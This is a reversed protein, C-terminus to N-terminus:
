DARGLREVVPKGMLYRQSVLVGRYRMKGEEMVKFGAEIGDKTMPWSIIIPRIGHLSVFRLMQRIEQRSAAASGQIKIGRQVLADVPLPLPDYSALLHLTGDCAVLSLARTLDPAETGFWLLHKVQACRDVPAGDKLLHFEKAGLSIAEDRKDANTSLAVVEYGLASAFQIAMHGTGGIGQVGVRDGPRMDSATLATWATAGGGMLPAAHEPELSAPLHFLMREDWVAHTAFAGGNDQDSGYEQRCECYQDKGGVCYDCHGCIKQVWGFGVKDGSKFRHVAAGVDRVFGAGEHGLAIPQHRFARDKGCLGAHSIEVLVERPQLTRRITTPIIEGNESGRFISFEVSKAM